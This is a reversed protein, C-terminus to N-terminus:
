DDWVEDMLEEIEKRLRKTETKLITVKNGEIKVVDGAVAETPFIAREFDQTEGDIEVVAWKHEFRDIIGKM